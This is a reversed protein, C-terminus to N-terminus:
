NAVAERAPKDPRQNSLCPRDAITHVLADFSERLAPVNLGFGVRHMDAVTVLRISGRRCIEGLMPVTLMNSSLRLPRNDLDPRNRVFDVANAAWNGDIGATPHTDILIFDGKQKAIFQELAVHPAVFRRTNVFLIPIAFFLTLGSLAVVLGDAREGLRDSLRQYGLGGLLAFSGLFPHLYRYGWGHGQYPLLVTMTLILGAIGWLMPVGLGLGRRALPYSAILLPTLALNQWAIFRLLNLMMLLVAYPDRNLLLPLVRMKLFDYSGGGNASPVGTEVAVLSPYTAWWGVITILAISYILMQRWEGQRLRWLIFPVVFLCHFIIQHLGVALFSSLIAVAHGAKGGRLFAALWVLNLAMHATMSYATMAAVLMQASLGYILFVVWRARHDEGLMRRAVDYLAVGGSLVLLPNFYVPNAVKSFALRLMANVPLYASVLAAPNQENLLFAPVLALAFARWESALHAALRGKDFVAMDFAVMEEDRSINFNGMLSNTGWGLLLVMAAGVALLLMPSLERKPLCLRPAWFSLTLLLPPLAVLVPMDQKQVQYLTFVPSHIIAALYVLSALIIAALGVSRWVGTHHM